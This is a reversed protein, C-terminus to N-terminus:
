SHESFDWVIKDNVGVAMREIIIIDVTGGMMGSHADNAANYMGASKFEYFEAYVASDCGDIYGVSYKSFDDISNITVDSSVPAVIVYDGDGALEPEASVNDDDTIESEMVNSPESEIIESEMVDSHESISSYSSQDSSSSKQEASGNCGCLLAFLLLSFLSFYKKM